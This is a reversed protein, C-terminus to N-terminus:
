ETVIQQPRCSNQFSQTKDKLTDKFPLDGDAIGSMIMHPDADKYVKIHNTYSGKQWYHFHGEQTHGPFFLRGRALRVWIRGVKKFSAYTQTPKALRSSQSARGKTSERCM